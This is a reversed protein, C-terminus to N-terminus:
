YNRQKQDIFLENNKNSKSFDFLDELKKLDTINNKTNTSFVFADTDMYHCQINKEGVYPQLKHFYTECMSLNLIEVVTVELYILRDIQVENQNFSYSDCNEFSKHIGTSTMKAQQKM